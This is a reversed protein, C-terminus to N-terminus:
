LTYVTVNLVVVDFIVILAELTNEILGHKAVDTNPILEVELGDVDSVDVFITVNPYRELKPITISWAFLELIWLIFVDLVDVM